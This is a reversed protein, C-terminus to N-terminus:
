PQRAPGLYAVRLTGDDPYPRTFMASFSPGGDCRFEGSIPNSMRRAVSRHLERVPPQWSESPPPVFTVSESLRADGIRQCRGERLLTRAGAFLVQPDMKPQEDALMPELARETLPVGMQEEMARGRALLRAEAVVRSDAVREIAPSGNVLAQRLLGLTGEPTKEPPKRCAGAAAALVVFGIL